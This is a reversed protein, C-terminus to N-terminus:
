PSGAPSTTTTSTRRSSTRSRCVGPPTSCATSTASRTSPSRSMATPSWTAGTAWVPRRWSGYTSWARRRLRHGRVDEGGTRTSVPQGDVRGAPELHLVAEGVVGALRVVIQGHARHDGRQVLAVAPGLHDDRRVVRCELRH